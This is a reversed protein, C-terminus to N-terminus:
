LDITWGCVRRRAEYTSRAKRTYQQPSGLSRDLHQLSLYYSSAASMLAAERLGYERVFTSEKAEDSGEVCVKNERGQGVNLTHLLGYCVPDYSEERM